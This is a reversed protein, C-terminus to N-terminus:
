VVSSAIGGGCQRSICWDRVNEMWYRYTNKFKSPYLKIEDKEVADKAQISIEKM